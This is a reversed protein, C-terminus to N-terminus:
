WIFEAFDPAPRAIIERNQLQGPELLHCGAEMAAEVDHLEGTVIFYSKGGLGTALRVELLKVEASKCAADASLLTAAVSFTETIGLSDVGPPRSLGLLTDLLSEHAQPLFLQDVLTDGAKELGERYAEDVEAVDGWFLTIYRGPSIPRSELLTVPAKKVCADSVVMGRAISSVEILGVAPYM